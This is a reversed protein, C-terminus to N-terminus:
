QYDTVPINEEWVLIGAPKIAIEPFAIQICGPEMGIQEFM